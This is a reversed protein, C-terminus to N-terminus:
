RFAQLDAGTEAARVAQSWGVVTGLAAMRDRYVRARNSLVEITMEVPAPVQREDLGSAQLRAPMADIMARVQDLGEPTAALTALRDRVAPVIKGAKLAGELVGDLESAHREVKLTTLEETLASLSAIATDYIERPVAEARLTTIAALCATEDAGEELGLATAITNMTLEPTGSAASAVAPLSALAPASVLAVSHLWEARGSKDHPFCPSVYRHSRADLVARGAPLWETRGFLGDPRAELQKIWGLAPSPEGKPPKVVTSHNLDIPVDVADAAFRAAIADPDLHFVRGDRCRLVGRPAIKIWGDGEAVAAATAIEVTVISTALKGPNVTRRTM